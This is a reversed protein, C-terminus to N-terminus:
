PMMTGTRIENQFGVYNFGGFRAGIDNKSGNLALYLLYIQYDLQTPSSMPSVLAAEARIIVDDLKNYGEKTVWKGTTPINKGDSSIAVNARTEKAAAIAKALFAKASSNSTIGIPAGQKRPDTTPVLWLSSTLGEHNDNLGFYKHANAYEGPRNSIFLNDRSFRMADAYATGGINYSQHDSGDVFVGNVEKARQMVWGDLGYWFLAIDGAALTTDFNKPKIKEGSNSTFHTGDFVRGENVTRNSTDIDGRYVSYTGDNNREIRNISIGEKYDAEILDTYGDSDTDYLKVELGMVIGTAVASAADIYSAEPKEAKYGGMWIAKDSDYHLWPVQNVLYGNPYKSFYELKTSPIASGNILFSGAAIVAPVGESASGQKFYKDYQSDIVNLSDSGMGVVIARLLSKSMSDTPSTLAQTQTTTAELTQVCGQLGLLMLCLAWLGYRRRYGANWFTMIM